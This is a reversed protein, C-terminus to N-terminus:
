AHAKFGIIWISAAVAGFMLFWGTAELGHMTDNTELKRGESWAVLGGVGVVVILCAILIGAAIDWVM